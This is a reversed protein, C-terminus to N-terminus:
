VFDFDGGTLKWNEKVFPNVKHSKGNLGRIILPLTKIKIFGCRRLSCYIFKNSTTISLYNANYKIVKTIVSRLLSQIFKKDGVIDVIHIPTLGTPSKQLPIGYIVFGKLKDKEYICHWAYEFRGAEQYRYDYWKIDHHVHWNGDNKTENLFTALKETEPRESIISYNNRSGKPLVSNGLNFLISKILPLNSGKIPRVFVDVVNYQSWNLRKVFGHLSNENAVGILFDFGRKQCNIYCEKALKTFLGRGQHDPHTMTDISQAGLIKEYGNSFYMPWVCYFAACKGEHIAIVGECTGDLTKLFRMKDYVKSRESRILVAKYLDEVLKIHKSSFRKIEYDSSM